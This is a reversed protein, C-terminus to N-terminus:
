LHPLALALLLSFTENGTAMCREFVGKSLSGLLYWLFDSVLQCFQPSSIRAIPVYM